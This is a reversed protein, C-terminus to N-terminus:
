TQKEAAALNSEDGEVLLSRAQRLLLVYVSAQDLWRLLIRLGAVTNGCTRIKTEPVM